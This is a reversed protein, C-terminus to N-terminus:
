EITFENYATLLNGKIREEFDYRFKDLKDYAKTRAIKRGVKSDFVDGDCLRAYGNIEKPIYIKFHGTRKRNWDKNSYRILDTTIDTIFQFIMHDKITLRCRVWGEKENVFYDERVKLRM